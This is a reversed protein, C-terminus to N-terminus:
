LYELDLLKMREFEGRESKEDHQSVGETLWNMRIFTEGGAIAGTRSSILWWKVISPFLIVPFSLYVYYIFLCHFSYSFFIFSFFPEILCSSQIWQVLSSRIIYASIWCLGWLLHLINAAQHPVWDHDNIEMLDTCLHTHIYLAWFLVSPRTFRAMMSYFAKTPKM